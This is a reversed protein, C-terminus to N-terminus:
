LDNKIEHLSDEENERQLLEVMKQEINIWKLFQLACKLDILLIL